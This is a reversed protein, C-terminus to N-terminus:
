LKIKGFSLFYVLIRVYTKWSHQYLLVECFAKPYAFFEKDKSKNFARMYIWGLRSKTMKELLEQQTKSFSESNQIISFSHLDKLFSIVFSYDNINQNAIEVNKYQLTISTFENQNYIYLYREIVQMSNAFYSLFLCFVLDEAMRLKPIFSFDQKIINITKFLFSTEFVKGCVNWNTDLIASFIENKYAYDVEPLKSRLVVDQMPSIIKLGFVYIDKYTKIVEEYLCECTNLMILDDSDLFLTYKGCVSKVGELRAHFTGLNEKNHLIKIRKDKKAYEEVIEISEDSGCDDVVIIEIDFFTQNICSELCRAIYPKANYVPIIISFFPSNHM